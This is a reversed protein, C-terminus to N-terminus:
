RTQAILYKLAARLRSFETGNQTYFVTRGPRTGTRNRSPTHTYVIRWLVLRSITWKMHRMIYKRCSVTAILYHKWPFIASACVAASSILSSFSLWLSHSFVASYYCVYKKTEFKNEDNPPMECTCVFFIELQIHFVRVSGGGGGGGDRSGLRTSSINHM